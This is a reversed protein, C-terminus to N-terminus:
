TDKYVKTTANITYQAVATCKPSGCIQDGQLTLSQYGNDLTARITLFHDIDQQSIWDIQMHVSFSRLLLKLGVVFM